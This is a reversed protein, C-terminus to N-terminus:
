EPVSATTFYVNSGTVSYDQFTHVGTPTQLQGNVFVDLNKGQADSLTLTGISDSTAVHQGNDSTVKFDVNAAHSATM